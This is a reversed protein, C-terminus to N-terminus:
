PWRGSTVKGYLEFGSLALNDSGSSNKGVQIVRFFRFGEFGVERYVDTDIGWTSAAGKQKLAKQEEEIESDNGTLYIRRDLLVWNVKDNSGELHWNLAVHTTSTRNRITYCTPLLGRGEGLDVGYYSFPENQTRCNTAIRGVFLDVTGAGISSAFAQVQGIQHPNQWLRKKGFSGLFFLAGNEDFDYEYLFETPRENLLGTGGASFSTKSLNKQPARAGTQSMALSKSMLDQQSPAGAGKLGKLGKLMGGLSAAPNPTQEQPPLQGKFLGGLAGGLVNKRIVDKKTEFEEDQKRENYSSYLKNRNMVTPQGARQALAQDFLKSMPNKVDTEGGEPQHESPREGGEYYVRPHVNITLEKGIQGNNQADLKYTLGEVIFNKALEFMPNMTMQLLQEHHLFNYRIAKFLDTKQAKTLRKVALRDTSGHHIGDVKKAWTAQIKGLDDLKAFEDAHKKEEEDQAKKEEEKKKQEEEERKKKEEETLNSWDKLPNEEDLIPLGERHKLYGSILDVVIKEDQIYLNDAECVSRFAEAPLERLFQLGKEDQSVKDFHVVKIDLCAKQLKENQFKLSELYYKTCNSPNLLKTIILDEVQHQLAESRLVFAQSLMFTANSENIEDAIVSFDQNHYFYKLIKSVADDMVEGNVPIPKPFDFQTIKSADETLFLELFYKSGSALV